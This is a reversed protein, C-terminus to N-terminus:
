IGGKSNNGKNIGSDVSKEITEASDNFGKKVKQGFFKVGGIVFLAILAIILIYETMGQGKKSKILNKLKNM